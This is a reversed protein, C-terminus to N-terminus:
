DLHEEGLPTGRAIDTSATRGLVSRLRKPPLGYGPRIVRVNDRSFPEGKKIDRVAFISRRFRVNAAEDESSCGFRVEGLADEADRVDRVLAELEKPELSFGIDPGGDARRLTFHKEIVRAGLAVAAIATANGLTHDSLGAVVGFRRALEPMARLNMDGPSAPYASVCKLLALGPDRGAWVERLTRVAEDIEELSAMGTSAIVPKGTRAIDEILELDTLEFSAIKYAPAGLQELFDIATRDFPTSFIPVGSGEALKFLAPHWDWPTHAERYLDHLTRGNWPGGRIVFEERPSDLTMTDATYTQLKIAGAGARIAEGVTDLARQLSGGHNASLEAVVLTRQDAGFRLPVAM